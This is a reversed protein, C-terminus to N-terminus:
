PAHIQDARGTLGDQWTSAGVHGRRDGDRAAAGPCGATADGPDRDDRAGAAGSVTGHREAHRRIRAADAGPGDGHRVLRERDRLRGRCEWASASAGASASAWAVWGRRRGRRRGAGVGDTRRIRRKSRGSSVAGDGHGRAGPAVPRRSAVDFQIVTVEPALPMPLPAM